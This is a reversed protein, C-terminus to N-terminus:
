NLKNAVMWSQLHNICTELQVIVDHRQEKDTVDYSVCVCVCVYQQTDDVYMNIWIGRRHVIRALSLTYIIFLVPGLVTVLHCLMLSKMQTLLLVMTIM